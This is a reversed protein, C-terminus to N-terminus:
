LAVSMSPGWNRALQVGMVVLAGEQFTLDFINLDGCSLETVVDDVNAIPLGGVMRGLLDLLETKIYDPYFYNSFIGRNSLAIDYVLNLIVQQTGISRRIAM